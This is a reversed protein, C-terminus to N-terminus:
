QKWEAVYDRLLEIEQALRVNRELFRLIERHATNTAKMCEDLEAMNLNYCKDVAEKMVEQQIQVIHLSDRIQFLIDCLEKSPCTMPVDQM